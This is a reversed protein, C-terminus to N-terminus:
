LNYKIWNKIYYRRYREPTITEGMMREKLRQPLFAQSLFPIKKIEPYSNIFGKKGIKYGVLDKTPISFGYKIMEPSYFPMYYKVDNARASTKMKESAYLPLQLLIKLAIFIHTPDNEIASVYIRYLDDFEKNDEDNLICDGMYFKIFRKKVGVSFDYLKSFLWYRSAISKPVPFYRPLYFWLSNLYCQFYNKGNAFISDSTQGNIIPLGKLDKDKAIEKSMLYEAFGAPDCCPEDTSEFYKKLDKQTFPQENGVIIWKGPFIEKFYEIDLKENEFFHVFAKCRKIFFNTFFTSDFGGSFSSVFNNQGKSDNNLIKEFDKRFEKKQYKRGRNFIELEKTPHFSHELKGGLKIETRLGPPAKRVGRMITFPFPMYGKQYYFDMYDENIECDSFDKFINSIVVVNDEMSFYIKDVGTIDADIIIRDKKVEVFSGKRQNIMKEDKYTYFSGKKRFTGKIKHM